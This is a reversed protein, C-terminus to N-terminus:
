KPVNFSEFCFLKSFKGIKKETCHVPHTTRHDASIERRDSFILASNFIPLFSGRDVTANANLMEISLQKIKTM